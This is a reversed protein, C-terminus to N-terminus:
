KLFDGIYVLHEFPINQKQKMVQLISELTGRIVQEDKAYGARAVIAVPTDPPYFRGLEAVLKEMDSFMTFVVMSARTAAMRAITDSGGYGPKTDAANTLIASHAAVGFTLGRHLAANAANLCSVGPIIVPDLDQLVEVTWIYPGFICPDGGDLLCVNKGARVATTVTRVFNELEPKAKAALDEGKSKGFGFNGKLSQLYRHIHIGPRPYVTKDKILEPYNERNKKSCYVIDASQITRMAKLTINDADGCGVSVLYFHGTSDAIARGPIVCLTMLLLLGLTGQVLPQGIQGIILKM